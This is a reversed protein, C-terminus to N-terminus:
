TTSRRGFASSCRSRMAVAILGSLMLLVSPPLPVSTLYHTGSAANLTFNTIQQHNIDFLEIGTLKATLSSDATGHAWALLGIQVSWPQDWVIPLDLSYFTSSGSLSGIGATWGAPPTTNSITSLDGRRAHANLVEYLPGGQNQVDLVAYNEGFFYPAPTGLSTLSGDVAFQYRVFGNSLDAVQSSSATLTDSFQAAGTSEFLGGTPYGPIGGSIAAHASASLKGYNAISDGKGDFYGSGPNGLSVPSLSKTYTLPGTAASVSSVGGSYGCPGIGGVPVSVGGFTFIGSFAPSYSTCGQAISGGGGVVGAYANLEAYAQPASLTIALGLIIKIIPAIPWATHKSNNM